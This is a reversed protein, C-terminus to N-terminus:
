PGAWQYIEIDGIKRLPRYNQALFKELEPFKEHLLNRISPYSLDVSLSIQEDAVVFYEPRALIVDQTYERIWENQLDSTPKGPPTIALQTVVCFRSPLRKRLLYPILPHRAFVEVRDEPLLVPRLYDAALYHTALQTDSYSGLGSLYARDLGRFCYKFVFV